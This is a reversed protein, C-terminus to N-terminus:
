TFNSLKLNNQNYFKEIFVKKYIRFIKKNIQKINRNPNGKKILFYPIDYIIQDIKVNLLQGETNKNNKINKLETDYGLEKILNLEGIFILIIWNDENIQNLFNEYSNM